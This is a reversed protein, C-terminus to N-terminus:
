KKLMETIMHWRARVNVFLYIVVTLGKIVDGSMYILLLLNLSIVEEVEITLEHNYRVVV